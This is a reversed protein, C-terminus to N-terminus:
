RWAISRCARTAGCGEGAPLRNAVGMRRDAPDTGDGGRDSHVGRAAGRRSARQELAAAGGHRVGHGDRRRVAAPLAAHIRRARARRAIAGRAHISAARRREHLSRLLRAHRAGQTERLVDRSRRQAAPYRRGRRGVPYLSIGVSPTVVLTNTALQLPQQLEAILRRAVTAADAPTRIGPLVVIFEDGGLRAIHNNRPAPHADAAAGEDARLSHRMRAAVLCLLEDGVAHGLTDNVRKFNDLDLYLVALMREHEKALNVASALRNRSQERNPLGTLPDFYALKVIRHEARWKSALSITMQRIEHPISLSKCTPSSKRRRCWRGSTPRTSTRIPPACCSRSPRISSASARRPGYGTPVRRCACTSFRSQSRSTQPSPTACPRLRRRPARASCRRSSRTARSSGRRMAPAPRAFLRERLNHFVATEGSM